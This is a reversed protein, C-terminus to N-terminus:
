RGGKWYRRRNMNEGFVKLGVGHALKVDRGGLAGDLPASTEGPPVKYRRLDGESCEILPM